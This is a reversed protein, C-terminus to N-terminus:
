AANGPDGVTVWDINAVASAPLALAALFILPLKMPLNSFAGSSFAFATGSPLPNPIHRKGFFLL